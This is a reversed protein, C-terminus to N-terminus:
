DMSDPLCQLNHLLRLRHRLFGAKQRAIEALNEQEGQLGKGEIVLTQGQRQLAQWALADWEEPPLGEARFRLFLRDLYPLEIGGGIVPSALWGLPSDAEDNSLAHRNLRLCYPRQREIHEVDTCVALDNKAFLVALASYLQLSDIKGALAQRLEGVNHVANDALLNLLPDYIDPIVNVTRLFAVAPNFEARETLLIVNLADWTRTQESLGARRGGKVWYDCRFQRNTLYDKVTQAFSPNKISNVFAQQEDDFLCFTLDEVHRASCAYSLKASGLWEEMQSFYMPQWDRNLYEHAIYGPSHTKLKQLRQPLDPANKVLHPSHKLLESGFDLAQSIRESRSGTGLHDSHQQLIHRVPLHPAWSPLVNYSIYLVGGATLKRRIFDVIIRRNEDSIWTWIGHLVIFDFDPLDDRACFEAFGQEALLLKDKEVGSQAALSRAFAAQAPNFDTAHWAARGAAAHINASVGQGFGLECAHVVPPVALGASLFPIALREPNLETYYGYTYNIDNVYGESWDPASM